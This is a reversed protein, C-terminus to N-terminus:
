SRNLSAEWNSLPLYRGVEFDQLPVIDEIKFPIITFDRLLIRTSLMAKAEPDSMPQMAPSGAESDASDVAARRMPCDGPAKSEALDSDEFAISFTVM